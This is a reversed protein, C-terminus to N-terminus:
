DFNGSLMFKPIGLLSEVASSVKMSPINRIWVLATRSNILRSPLAFFKFSAENYEYSSICVDSRNVTIIWRCDQNRQKWVFWYWWFAVSTCNEPSWCFSNGAQMGFILSGNICSACQIREVTFDNGFVNEKRRLKSYQLYFLVWLENPFSLFLEKAWCDQQWINHSNEIPQSVKKLELM